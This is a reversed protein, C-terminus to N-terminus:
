REETNAKAADPLPQGGNEIFRAVADSDFKWRRGVRLRPLSDAIKKATSESIDLTRALQAVTLLSM